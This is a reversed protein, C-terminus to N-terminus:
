SSYWFDAALMVVCLIRLCFRILCLLPQESTVSSSWTAAPELKPVSVFFGLLDPRWNLKVFFFSFAALESSPIPLCLLISVVGGGLKPSHTV